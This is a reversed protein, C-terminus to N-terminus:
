FAPEEEDEQEQRQPPQAAPQQPSAWPDTFSPTQPAPTPPMAPQQTPTWNNQPQAFPGGYVGQNPNMFGGSPNPNYGGQQTNQGYGGQKSDKTVIATSFRLSPGIDDVNMELVTRNVGNKDPYTRQQMRGIAVVRMGKSLTAVIHQATERWAVCHMYVAPGDQRRGDKFQYSSQAITFSVMDAGRGTHMKPDETLNGVVTIQIEGSM